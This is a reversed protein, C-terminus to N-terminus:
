RAAPILCNVQCELNVGGSLEVLAGPVGSSNWEGGDRM